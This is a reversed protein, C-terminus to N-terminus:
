QPAALHKGSGILPQWRLVYVLGVIPYDVALQLVDYEGRRGQILPEPVRRQEKEHRHDTPLGPTATAYRVECAPDFPTVDISIPFKVQLVLRRTPRTITWGCYDYPIKRTGPPEVSVVYLGAQLHEILEYPCTEGAPLPPSIEIVTALTGQKSIRTKARVDYKSSGSSITMHEAQRPTGTSDTEPLSMFTDLQDIDSYAEIEIKRKVTASGDSSIAYEVDLSGYGIGYRRSMARYIGESTLFVRDKALTVVFFLLAIVLLARSVWALMVPIDFARDVLSLGAGGVFTFVLVFASVPDSKWFKIFRSSM